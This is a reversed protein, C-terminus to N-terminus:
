TFLLQQFKTQDMRQGILEFDRRKLELYDSLPKHKVTYILRTIAQRDRKEIPQNKWGAMRESIVEDFYEEAKENVYQSM